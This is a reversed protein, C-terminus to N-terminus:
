PQSLVIPVSVKGAIILRYTGPPVLHGVRAPRGGGLTQDWNGGTSLMQHGRLRPGLFAPCNIAEPGPYVEAGRADLIAVDLPGCPGLLEAVSGSVQHPGHSPGCTRGSRYRLSVLYQILEGADFPRTPVTVTLIV